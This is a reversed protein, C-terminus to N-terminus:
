AAVPSALKSSTNKRAVSPLLTPLWYVTSLQFSSLCLCVLIDAGGILSPHFDFHLLFRAFPLLLPNCADAPSARCIALAPAPAGSSESCASRSPFEARPIQPPPPRNTAPAKTTAPTKPAASPDM